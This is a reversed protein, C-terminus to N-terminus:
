KAAHTSLTTVGVVGRMPFLSPVCKRQEVAWPGTTLAAHAAQVAADVDRADGRPIEAWPEGTYPNHSAFWTGGAPAVDRGGIRLAYRQLTTSM